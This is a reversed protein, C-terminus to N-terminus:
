IFVNKMQDVVDYLSILADNIAFGEYICESVTVGSQVYEGMQSQRSAYPFCGWMLGGPMDIIM